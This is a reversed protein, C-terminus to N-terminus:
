ITIQNRINMRNNPRTLHRQASPAAYIKEGIFLERTNYVKHPIFSRNGCKRCKYGSFRGASTMKNKCESCFPPHIKVDKVLDVIEIFELTFSIKSDKKVVAGHIYIHDGVMLEASRKSLMKTPEFVVCSYIESGNRVKFTVFKGTKTEPKTHIYVDTSVVSFEEFQNTRQRVHADTAQNSLFLQTYEIEERKILNDFFRPLVEMKNGRIGCFIPDPGSPVILERNKYESSFTSPYRNSLEQINKVDVERKKGFNEAVRYAIFEFTHDWSLDASIASLAGIVGISQEPWIYDVPQLKVAEDYTVIKCVAKKYLLKSPRKNVLIAIGPSKGKDMKFLSTDYQVRTKILNVIEELELSSSFNINVAANGRTKNPVNPNLRILRPLGIFKIVHDKRVLDKIIRVATWTTCGGFSSDTSDLGVCYETM